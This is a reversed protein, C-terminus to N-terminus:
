SLLTILTVMFLDYAEPLYISKISELYEIIIEDPLATTGMAVKEMPEGHHTQGPLSLQIGHGYYFESGGIVVSTHYVADIYTGLNLGTNIYLMPCRM